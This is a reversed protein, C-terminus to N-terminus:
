FRTTLEILWGPALDLLRSEILRDFGTLIAVGLAVFLM